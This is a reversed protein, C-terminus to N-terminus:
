TDDSLESCVREKGDIMVEELNLAIERDIRFTQLRHHGVWYVHGVPPAFVSTGM